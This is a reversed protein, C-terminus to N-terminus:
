FSPTPDGGSTTPGSGGIGGFGSLLGGIGQGSTLSSTANRAIPAVFTAVAVALAVKGAAGITGSKKSAFHGAAGLILPNAAASPVLATAVGLGLAGKILTMFNTNGSSKRRRTTRRRAPARRRTTRKRRAMTIVKTKHSRSTRTRTAAKKRRAVPKHGKKFLFKKLHPPTVGKRPAM